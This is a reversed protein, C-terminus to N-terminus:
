RGARNDNHEARRESHNPLPLETVLCAGRGPTSELTLQGGLLVARERMGSLGSSASANLVTQPDFGIGRDEIQINIIDPNAWLRVMVESVSAHRAVNTLAEQTIRYTATEIEAPFRQGELGHHQFNVQINSQAIYRKFHWLM